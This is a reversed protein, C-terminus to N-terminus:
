YLFCINKCLIIDITIWYKQSVSSIKTPQNLNSRLTQKALDLPPICFATTRNKPRMHALHFTLLACHSWGFKNLLPYFMQIKLIWMWWLTVVVLEVCFYFFLVIKDSRMMRRMQLLLVCLNLCEGCWTYRKSKMFNKGNGKCGRMRHHRTAAYLHVGWAGKFAHNSRIYLQLDNQTHSEEEQTQATCRM